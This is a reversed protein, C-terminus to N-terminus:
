GLRPFEGGRDGFGDFPVVFNGVRRLAIGYNGGGM